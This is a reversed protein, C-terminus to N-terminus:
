QVKAAAQRQLLGALHRFLATTTLLALEADERELQFDIAGHAGKNRLTSVGQMIQKLAERRPDTQDPLVRDLLKVFASGRDQSNADVSVGAAVELAKRAETAASSWNGLLYAEHANRLVELGAKLVEAKAVPPLPIEFVAFEGWRLAKLVGLWEDRQLVVDREFYEEHLDGLDRIRRTGNGEASVTVYSAERATVRGKVKFIVPGGGKRREEIARIRRDDIPLPLYQMYRRGPELSAPGLPVRAAFWSTEEEYCDVWYEISYTEIARPESHPLTFILALQLTGRTASLGTGNKEVELSM